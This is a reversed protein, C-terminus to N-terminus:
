QQMDQGYDYEAEISYIYVNGLGGTSRKIDFNVVDGPWIQAYGTAPNGTWYSTAAINLPMNVRSIVFNWLPHFAQVGAIVNTAAGSMQYFGGPPPTYSYTGSTITTCNFHQGTLSATISVSDGSTQVGMLMYLRLNGKFNWPVTWGQRVEAAGTSLVAVSQSLSQAMWAVTGGAVATSSLPTVGDAQTLDSPIFYIRQRFDYKLQKPSPTYTSTPTTNPSGTPTLTPTLTPFATQIYTRTAAFATQTAQINTQAQTQTANPTPTNTVAMANVALGFVMLLSLWIKKM